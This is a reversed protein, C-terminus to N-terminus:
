AIAYAGLFYTEKEPNHLNECFGQILWLYKGNKESLKKGNEPPTDNNTVILSYDNQTELPTVKAMCLAEPTREDIHPLAMVIKLAQNQPELLKLWWNQNEDPWPLSLILNEKGAGIKIVEDCNAM